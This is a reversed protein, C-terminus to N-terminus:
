YDVNFSRSGSTGNTYQFIAHYLGEPWPTPMTVLHKNKGAIPFELPTTYYVVGMNNVISLNINTPTFLDFDIAFDKDKVPVPYITAQIFSDFDAKVTVPDVLEEYHRFM